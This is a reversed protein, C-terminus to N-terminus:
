RRLIAMKIHSGTHLLSIVSEIAIFLQPRAKGQFVRM